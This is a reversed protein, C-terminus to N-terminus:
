EDLARLVPISAHTSLNEEFSRNMGAKSSRGWEPRDLGSSTGGNDQGVAGSPDFCEMDNTACLLALRLGSVVSSVQQAITVNGKSEYKAPKM